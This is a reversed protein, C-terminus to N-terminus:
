PREIVIMAHAKEYPDLPMSDLVRYGRDKLVKEADKFVSEPSATVDESRAKVAVMGFKANFADMNDCLIKAQMKQAIEFARQAYKASQVTDDISIFFDGADYQKRWNQPDADAAKSLKEGKQKLISTEQQAPVNLTMCILAVAATLMRKMNNQM